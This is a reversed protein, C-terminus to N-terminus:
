LAAISLTLMEEGECLELANRVVNVLHPGYVRQESRGPFSSLTEFDGM